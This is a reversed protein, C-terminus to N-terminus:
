EAGLPEGARRGVPHRPRRPHVRIAAIQRTQKLGINTWTKGRDTSRYVGDGHTTTVGRVPAEGTGAYVVNIDSPAVAIAGISSTELQGDSINTWTM